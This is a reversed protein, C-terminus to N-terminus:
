KSNQRWRHLGGELPTNTYNELGYWEYYIKSMSKHKMVLSHPRAMVRNTTSNDDDNDDDSNRAELVLLSTPSPCNPSPRYTLSGWLLRQALSLYAKGTQHDREQIALEQNAFAEM